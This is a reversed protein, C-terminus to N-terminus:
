KLHEPRVSEGLKTGLARLYSDATRHVGMSQMIVRFLPNSVYGAETVTLQSGGGLPQLDYTWTGGFAGHTTDDIRTLLHTPPRSEEVILRMPFGGADQEWIEKGNEDPLRRASKLHRWSGQLAGLDRIVPWVEAASKKLTIRSTARHERPLLSGILTPLGILVVLGIVSFLVVKM